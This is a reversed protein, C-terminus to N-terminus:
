PTQNEGGLETDIWSGSTTELIYSSPKLSWAIITALWTSMAQLETTM